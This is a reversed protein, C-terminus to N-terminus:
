FLRELLRLSSCYVTGWMKNRLQFNYAHEELVEQYAYLSVLRWFAKIKIPRDLNANGTYLVSHLPLKVIEAEAKWLQPKRMFCSSLFDRASKRNDFAM